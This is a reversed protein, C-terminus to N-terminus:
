FDLSKKKVPQLLPLEREPGRFVMRKITKSEWVSQDIRPDGFTVPVTLRRATGGSGFDCFREPRDPGTQRQDLVMLFGLHVGLVDPM